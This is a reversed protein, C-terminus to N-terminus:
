HQALAAQGAATGAAGCRNNFADLAEVELAFPKGCYVVGLEEACQSVGEDILSVAWNAPAAASVRVELGLEVIVAASAGDGLFRLYPTAVEAVSQAAQFPPLKIPEGSWEITRPKPHWSVSVKGRVKAGALNGAEDLLVLHMGRLSSGAVLGDLLAVHAPTDEDTSERMPLPEGNLLIQAFAPLASPEV